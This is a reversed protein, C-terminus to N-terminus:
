GESESEALWTEAMSQLWPKLDDYLDAAYERQRSSWCAEEGDDGKPEYGLLDLIDGEVDSNGFPRKDDLGIGGYECCGRQLHEFFARALKRMDDERFAM